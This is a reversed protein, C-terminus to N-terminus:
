RIIDNVASDKMQLIDFLNSFSETTAPSEIESSTLNLRDLETLILRAVRESASCSFSYLLFLSFLSLFSFLSCCRKVEATSTPAM